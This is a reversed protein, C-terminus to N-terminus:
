KMFGVQTGRKTQQKKANNGQKMLNKKYQDECHKFHREGAEKNFKRSCWKCQIRDDAIEDLGSMEQTPRFGTATSTGASGGNAAMMAQRFQLSQIKWKPMKKANAAPAEEVKSAGGQGGKKNLSRKLGFPKSFENM